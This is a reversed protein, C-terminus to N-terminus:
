LYFNMTIAKASCLEKLGSSSTFCASSSIKQVDAWAQTFAINAAYKTDSRLSSMNDLLKKLIKLDTFINTIWLHFGYANSTIFAPLYEGDVKLLLGCDILNSYTHDINKAEDSKPHCTYEM